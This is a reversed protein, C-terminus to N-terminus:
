GLRRRPISITTTATPRKATPSARNMADCDRNREASIRGMMPRKGPDRDGGCGFVSILRSRGGALARAMPNVRYGTEAVADLVRQRTAPRVGTKGNIVNSVTM